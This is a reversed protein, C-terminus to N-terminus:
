HLTCLSQESSFFHRFLQAKNQLVFSGEIKDESMMKSVRLSNLQLVKSFRKDKVLM